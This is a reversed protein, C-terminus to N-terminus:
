LNTWGKSGGIYENQLFEAMDQRPYAYGYGDAKVEM